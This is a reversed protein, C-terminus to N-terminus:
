NHLRSASVAAHYWYPTMTCGLNRMSPELLGQPLCQALIFSFCARWVHPQRGAHAIDLHETSISTHLSLQWLLTQRQRHLQSSLSSSHSSAMARISQSPRSRLGATLNFRMTYLAVYHIYASSYRPKLHACPVYQRHEVYQRRRQHPTHPHIMESTVYQRCCRWSKAAHTAVSVDAQMSSPPVWNHASVVVQALTM